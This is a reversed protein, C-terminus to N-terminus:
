WRSMRGCRVAARFRVSGREPVGTGARRGGFLGPPLPGIPPPCERNPQAPLGALIQRARQENDAELRFWTRVFQEPFLEDFEKRFGDDIIVFREIEPHSELYEKVEGARYLPPGGSENTRM